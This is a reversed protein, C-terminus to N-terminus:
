AGGPAAGTRVMAVSTTCPQGPKECACYAAAMDGVFVADVPINDDIYFQLGGLLGNKSAQAINQKLRYGELEWLKNRALAKVRAIAANRGLSENFNEASVSAASDIAIVIGHPDLAAAVTTTTGPIVYTHYNLKEVLADVQDPTIRPATLGLATIQQELSQSNSM